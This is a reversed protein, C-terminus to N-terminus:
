LHNPEFSLAISNMCYRLSTPPPGDDFVHGLHSHCRACIVEERVMGESYDTRVVVASPSIVDFFSPWGTGSEFKQESTFIPNACAACSYTGPRHELYLAGSGPEETASQRLVAFQEPSLLARWQDDSLELPAGGELAYPLPAPPLLRSPLDLAILLCLLAATSLLAATGQVASPGSSHRAMKISAEKENKEDKRRTVCM